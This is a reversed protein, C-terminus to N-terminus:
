KNSLSIVLIVHNEKQGKGAKRGGKKRGDERRITTRGEGGKAEGEERGKKRKEVTMYKM